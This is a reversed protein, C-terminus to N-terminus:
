LLNWSRQVYQSYAMVVSGVLEDNDVDHWHGEIEVGREGGDVGKM